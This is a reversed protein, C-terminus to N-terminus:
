IATSVPAAHVTVAPLPVVFRGGGELYTANRRLIESEINWPLLLCADPAEMILREPPVIPQGTGPVFRGQKAPSVDAVWPIRTADLGLVNLLVIGKAAAGYAAVRLYPALVDALDARLRDVRRALGTCPTADLVGREAEHRCHTQVATEDGDRAIELHLSGGHIPIERVDVIRLGHQGFLRRLSTVTFYSYHEHYITDFAGADVLRLLSPVEVHAVGDDALLAAIGAAIENPDPVHALVNNAFMVDAPGFSRRAEEATARDFYACLTPVGQEEAFRAVNVAPEVGLVTANRAIAHRLLYGDNSAIEVVRRGPAVHREVLARAHEVMTDSQSSFYRYDRFMLDPPPTETLQGLGCERCVVLELPSRPCPDHPQALLNNVLPMPGLDIVDRFSTGDCVRCNM